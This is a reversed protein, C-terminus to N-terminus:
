RPPGRPRPRHHALGVAQGGIGGRQLPQRAADSELVAIGTDPYLSPNANLRARALELGADALVQEPDVDRDAVLRLAGDRRAVVEVGAGDAAAARRCAEPPRAPRPM